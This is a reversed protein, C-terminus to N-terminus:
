AALGTVQDTQASLGCMNSPEEVIEMSAELTSDVCGQLTMEDEIM